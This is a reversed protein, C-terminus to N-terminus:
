AVRVVTRPSNLDNRKRMAIPTSKRHCITPAWRQPTSFDTIADESFIEFLVTLSTKARYRSLPVTARFCPEPRGRLVLGLSSPRRTLSTFACGKEGAGKILHRQPRGRDDEVMRLRSLSFWKFCYLGATVGSKCTLCTSPWKFHAIVWHRHHVELNPVM